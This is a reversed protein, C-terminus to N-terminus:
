PLCFGMGYQPTTNGVRQYYLHPYYERGRSYTNPGTNGGRSSGAARKNSGCLAILDRSIGGISPDRDAVASCGAFSGLAAEFSWYFLM